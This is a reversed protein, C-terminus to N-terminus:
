PYKKVAKSCTLDGHFTQDGDKGKISEPNVNLDSEM